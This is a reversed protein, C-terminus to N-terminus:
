FHAEVAHSTNAGTGFLHWGNKQCRAAHRTVTFVTGEGVRPHCLSLEGEACLVGRAVGSPVFRQLAGHATCEQWQRADSCM